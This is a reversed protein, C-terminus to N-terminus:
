IQSLYYPVCLKLYTTELLVFELSQECKNVSNKTESSFKYNITIKDSM